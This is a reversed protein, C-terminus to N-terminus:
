RVTFILKGALLRARKRPVNARNVERPHVHGRCQGEDGDGQRDGDEGAPTARPWPIRTLLHPHRRPAEDHHHAPGCQHHQQDMDGGQQAHYGPQDLGLLGTNSKKLSDWFHQEAEAATLTKDGM